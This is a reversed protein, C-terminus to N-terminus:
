EDWAKRGTVQEHCHNYIERIHAILSNKIQVKILNEHDDLVKRLEIENKSQELYMGTILGFAQTIKDVEDLESAYIAELKTTLNAEEM